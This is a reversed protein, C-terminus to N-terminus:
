EGSIIKTWKDESAIYGKIGNETEIYYWIRKGSTKKESLVTFIEGKYVMGIKESTTNARKRINIYETVIEIQKKSSDIENSQSKLPLINFILISITSIVFLSVTILLQKKTFYPKAYYAELEKNRKEYKEKQEKPIEITEVKLKWDYNILFLIIQFFLYGFYLFNVRCLYTYLKIYLIILIIINLIYGYSAIKQSKKSFISVIFVLLVIIDTFLLCNATLNNLGLITINHPFIIFNEMTKYYIINNIFLLLCIFINLFIRKKNAQPVFSKFLIKKQNGASKISQSEEEIIKRIKARLEEDNEYNAPNNSNNSYISVTKELLSDNGYISVTKELEDTEITEGNKIKELDKLLDSPDIYRDKRYFACAKKIVNMLSTSVGEIEPLSEGSMRRMLANEADSAKINKLNKDLFPAKNNNLLRYMVIGLSYIDSSINANDGKYIEPSMYNYTGKKSMGYTTKELKRAVGFDGLKYTGNEDVFINAPKIDRHLLNHKNCVVLANAIDCGIKVVEKEDITNKEIYRDLSTLLEMRIYIDFGIENGTKEIILHDQYDVINKNARLEYMIEIEKVIDNITDRYYELIDKSTEGYGERIIDNIEDQEKPLSIHKIASYFVKNLEIKKSKYVEGFSGQGIKEDLSWVGWLKEM